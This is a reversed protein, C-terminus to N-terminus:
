IWRKLRRRGATKWVRGDVPAGCKASYACPSFDKALHRSYVVDFQDVRGNVSCRVQWPVVEGTGKYTVGERVVYGRRDDLMRRYVDDATLNNETPTHKDWRARAMRRGHASRARALKQNYPM